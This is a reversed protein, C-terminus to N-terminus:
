KAPILGVSSVYFVRNFGVEIYQILLASLEVVLLGGRVAHSVQAVHKLTLTHGADADMTERRPYLVNRGACLQGAFPPVQICLQRCMAFHRCQHFIVFHHLDEGSGVQKRFPDREVLHACVLKASMGAARLSLVM